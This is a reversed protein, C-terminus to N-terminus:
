NLSSVQTKQDEETVNDKRFRTPKWASDVEKLKVDERLSLSVHIVPKHSSNNNPPPALKVSGKGLVNCQLLILNIKNQESIQTSLQCSVWQLWTGAMKRPTELTQTGPAELAM